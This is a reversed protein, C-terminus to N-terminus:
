NKLIRIMNTVDYGSCSSGNLRISVNKDSSFAALATSYMAKGSETSIKWTVWEASPCNNKSVWGECPSLYANGNDSTQLKCISVTYDAAFVKAPLTLILLLRLTKM